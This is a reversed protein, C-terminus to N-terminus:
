VYGVQDKTEIIRFEDLWVLTNSTLVFDKPFPVEYTTLDIEETIFQIGQDTLRLGGKDKSRNNQWWIPLHEAVTADNISKNLEKLFVKTYTEKWNM